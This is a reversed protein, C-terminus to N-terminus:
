RKSKTKKKPVTPQEQNIEAVIELYDKCSWDNLLQYRKMEEFAEDERGTKWLSHFLGLSALESRPALRVASQFCPIAEEAKNLASFLIHGLMGHAPACNPYEAVIQAFAEIAKEYARGNKLALAQDLLRNLRPDNRTAIADPIGKTSTKARGSATSTM